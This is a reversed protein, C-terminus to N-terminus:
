FEASFVGIKAKDIFISLVELLQTWFHSVKRLAFKDQLNGSLVLEALMLVAAFRLEDGACDFLRDRPGYLLCAYIVHGATQMWDHLWLFNKWEYQHRVDVSAPKLVSSQTALHVQQWPATHMSAGPEVDHESCVSGLCGAMDRLIHQRHQWQIAETKPHLQTRFVVNSVNGLM